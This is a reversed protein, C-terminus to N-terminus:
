LRNRVPLFFWELVRVLGRRKWAELTVPQSYRLDERFVEALRRAIAEDYFVASVEHNLRLSLNDFNVSGISSWVGDVVITKSHLLAGKYEHIRVGGELVRGFQGQSALRMMRDTVNSAEGSVIVDVRVGRVAAKVLADVMRDDPIFYLSTLEISTRASEIALLFLAYAEASGGQPSSRVCQVLATGREVPEPFFADGALFVRTEERWPEVFAAQLHRVVPGELRVDTQRWAGAQRGDGAWAQSIGVGGTFGVRGDVVLVRRHNRHNVRRPDLPNLPRFDVLECGGRRIVERVEEPMKQSGVPDVMVHGRVGARCREALAEAMEQSVAGDEWVYNTLTISTRAGRVAALMAPFIEDGNLLIQVRNGPVIGSLTHAEIARAFEADGVRLPPVVYPAPAACGAALLLALAAVVLRCADAPRARPTM